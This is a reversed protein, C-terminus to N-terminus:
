RRPAGKSAAGKKKKKGPKAAESPSAADSYSTDVVDAREINGLARFGDPRLTTEQIAWVGAGGGAAFSKPVRQMGSVPMVGPRRTLSKTRSIAHAYMDRTEAATVSGPAERGHAEAAAHERARRRQERRKAKAADADRKLRDLLDPDRMHKIEESSLRDIHGPNASRRTVKPVKLVKISPSSKAEAARQEAHQKWEDLGAGGPTKITRAAEEEERQRREAAAAAEARAVAQEQAEEAEEADGGSWHKGQGLSYKVEAEEHLVTARAVRKEAKANQGGWEAAEERSKRLLYKSKVLSRKQEEHQVRRIEYKKARAKAEAEEQLEEPSQSM